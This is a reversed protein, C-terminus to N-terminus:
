LRELQQWAALAAFLLTPVAIGIWARAANACAFAWLAATAYAIFALMNATIVAATPAMGCRLLMLGIGISIACALLYGGAVAAVTRSAIAGHYRIPSPVSLPRM